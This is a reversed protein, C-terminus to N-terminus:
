RRAYLGFCLAHVELTLARIRKLDTGELTQKLEQYKESIPAYLEEKTM